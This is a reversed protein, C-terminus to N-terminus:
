DEDSGGYLMEIVLKLANEVCSSINEGRTGSLELKKYKFDVRKEQKRCVCIWITGNPVKENGGSSGAYGSIAVCLDVGLKDCGGLSMQQVVNSSVVDCRDITGQDVDALSVKLDTAYTVLGGRYYKSAGNISALSAGILGATCSEVTGITLNEKVLKKAINEILKEDIM